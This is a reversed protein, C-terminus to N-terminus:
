RASFWRMLCSARAVNWSNSADMDRSELLCTTMTRRAPAGQRSAAAECRYVASLM